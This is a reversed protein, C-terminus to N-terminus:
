MPHTLTSLADLFISSNNELMEYYADTHTGAIARLQKMSEHGALDNAKEGTILRLYTAGYGIKVLTNPLVASRLLSDYVDNQIDDPM